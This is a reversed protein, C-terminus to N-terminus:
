RAACREDDKSDCVNEPLAIRRLLQYSGFHYPGYSSETNWLFPIYLWRFPARTKAANLFPVREVIEFDPRKYFHEEQQEDFDMDIIWECEDISSYRSMEEHNMENFPGGNQWTGDVEKFYVPLQGDFSSKLWLVNSHETFLSSPFRYWEKGVCLNTGPKDYSTSYKHYLRLPGNYGEILCCIRSMALIIYTMVTPRILHEFTRAVLTKERHNSLVISACFAILPYVIFLFREEKHAMASFVTLTFIYPLFLLNTHFSCVLPPLLSLPFAINFNLLLNKILFNWTEVGYLNQGVGDGTFHLNYLIINLPALTYKHFFYCDIAVVIGSFLVGIFICRKLFWSIGQEHLMGIALMIGSLAAFPWGFICASAMAILSGFEFEQMWLTNSSLVLYMAFSSPLFAVSATFMGPSALLFMLTIQSTIPTYIDYIVRLFTHEAFVSVCGLVLRIFYFIAQRGFIKDLAFFRGVLGIFVHPLIYAYSRISFDPSYEWTQFGKGYLIYSCPEWYNFTEDCDSIPSWIAAFVRLVLLLYFYLSM